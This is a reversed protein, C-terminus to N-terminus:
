EQDIDQGDDALETIKRAAELGRILDDVTQGEFVMRLEDAAQNLTDAEFRLGMQEGVPTGVQRAKEQLKLAANRLHQIADATIDDM